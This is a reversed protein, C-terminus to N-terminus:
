KPRRFIALGEMDLIHTWGDEVLKQAEEVTRATASYYKQNEIDDVYHTYRDTSM